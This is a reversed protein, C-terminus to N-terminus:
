FYRAYTFPLLLQEEHLQVETRAATEKAPLGGPPHAGLSVAKAVRTLVRPSKGGWPEYYARGPGSLELEFQDGDRPAYTRVMRYRSTGLWFM